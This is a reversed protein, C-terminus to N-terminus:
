PNPRFQIGCWQCFPHDPVRHNGCQYCFPPVRMEQVRTSSSGGEGQRHDQSESAPVRGRHQPPPVRMEQARTSNSGRKEQRYNQSESAPVRGRHQSPPVRMEQARTSSFGRKGQRHNQSESAPERGLPLSSPHRQRQAPCPETISDLNQLISYLNLSPKEESNRSSSSTTAVYMPQAAAPCPKQSAEVLTDSQKERSNALLGQLRAPIIELGKKAGPMDLVKLDFMQKFSYALESNVFNVFAYGKSTSSARNTPLHILDFSREFGAKELERRLMDETSKYPINKIMVTTKGEWESPISGEGAVRASRPHEDGEGLLTSLCAIGQQASAREEEDQKPTSSEWDSLDGDAVDTLNGVFVAASSSCGNSRTSSVDLYQSVCPDASKRHPSESDERVVNEIQLFTNRIIVSLSDSM